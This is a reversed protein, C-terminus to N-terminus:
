HYVQTYHHPFSPKAIQSSSSYKNPYTFNVKFWNQLLKTLEPASKVYLHLLQPSYTCVSWEHGQLQM